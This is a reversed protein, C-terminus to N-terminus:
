RCQKRRRNRTPTARGGRRRRRGSLCTRLALSCAGVVPVLYPLSEEVPIGAVHAGPLLM